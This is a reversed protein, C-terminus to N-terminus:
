LALVSKHEQQQRKQQLPLKIIKDSNNKAKKSELPM